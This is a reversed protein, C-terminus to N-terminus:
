LLMLETLFPPALRSVRSLPHHVGARLLVDDGDQAHVYWFLCNEPCGGQFKAHPHLRVSVGLVISELVSHVIIALEMLLPERHRMASTTASELLRYMGKKMERASRADEAGEEVHHIDFIVRELLLIVLFGLVTLSPGVQFTTSLNAAAQYELVDPLLHIIGARLATKLM